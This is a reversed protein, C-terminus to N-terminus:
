QQRLSLGLIQGSHTTMKRLLLLRFFSSLWVATLDSPDFFHVHHTWILLPVRHRWECLPDYKLFSAALCALLLSPSPSLPPPPSLSLSFLSYLSNATPHTCSSHHGVTAAEPEQKLKTAAALKTRTKVVQQFTPAALSRVLSRSSAQPYRRVEYKLTNNKTSTCHFPEDRFLFVCLTPMTNTSSCFSFRRRLCCTAALPSTGQRLCPVGRPIGPESRGVCPSESRIHHFLVLIQRPVPELFYCTGHLHACRKVLYLVTSWVHSRCCLM